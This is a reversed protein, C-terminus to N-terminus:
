NINAHLLELIRSTKTSWDHQRGFAQLTQVFTPDRRRLLLQGVATTFEEHNHAISIINKYELLDESFDTAVTPVGAASYEYLKVPNVAATLENKQFPIMGVDFRRLYAPIERYPKFGLVYVNPLSRLRAMRQRVDPHVRGIFVINIEPMHRALHEIADYDLWPYIAGVYGVVPKDTPLDRPTEQEATTRYFHDFEVGNGICYVADSRYARIQRELVPSTVTIVDARRITAEWVPRLYSPLSGFGFINDIYDYLVRVPKLTNIFHHIDFNHAFFALKGSNGLSRLAKRIFFVQVTHVLDRVVSFRGLLQTLSRVFGYRANYPLSPLSIAFINHEVQVARWHRKEALTVPEVWLVPHHRAIARAIHHPRQHLGRWSIDSFFIILM